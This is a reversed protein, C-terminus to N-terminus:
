PPLAPPIDFVTRKITTSISSSFRLYIDAAGLTSPRKAKTQLHHM